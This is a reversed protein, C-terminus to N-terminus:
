RSKSPKYVKVRSLIGDGQHAAAGRGSDGEVQLTGKTERGQADLAVHQSYTNM